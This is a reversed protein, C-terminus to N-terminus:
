NSTSGDVRNAITKKANQVIRIMDIAGGLHAFQTYKSLFEENEDKSALFHQLYFITITGNLEDYKLDKTFENVFELFLERNDEVMNHLMSINLIGFINKFVEIKDKYDMNPTFSCGVNRAIIAQADNITKNNKVFSILSAQDISVNEPENQILEEVESEYKTLDKKLRDFELDASELLAALRNFSRKSTDPISTIGKYGLDHEIEAWAHQLISRIQIEFKMKVFRKYEVLKIRDNNCSVVFHLSRYGFQDSNLKRKDISNKVDVEFERMVIDAIRDVDSELYTIVRIGVIDTIEQLSKYKDQKRDIKGELSCREKIRGNIQHVQISENKILDSLLVAMKDKLDNLTNKLSDFEKLIKDKM